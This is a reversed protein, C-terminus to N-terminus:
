SVGIQAYVCDTVYDKAHEPDNKQNKIIQVLQDQQSFARM